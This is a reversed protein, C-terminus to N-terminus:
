ATEIKGNKIADEMKFYKVKPREEVLIMSGCKSCYIDPFIGDLPHELIRIIFTKNGCDGCIYKPESEWAKLNSEKSM